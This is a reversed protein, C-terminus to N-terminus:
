VVVETTHCIFIKGVANVSYTVVSERFSPKVHMEGVVMLLSVTLREQKVIAWVEIKRFNQDCRERPVVCGSHHVM